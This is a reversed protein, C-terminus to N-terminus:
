CRGLLLDLAWCGRVHRGQGRLHSLLQPECCGAEELADALVALRGVALHGGPLEREEHASRALKPVISGNWALWSPDVTVPHFPNGFIDRFLASQALQERARVQGAAATAAPSLVEELLWEADRPDYPRDVGQLPSPLEVVLVAVIAQAAAKLVKTHRAARLAATLAQARAMERHAAAVTGARSAAQEAERVAARAGAYAASLQGADALGDAYLESVEVAAPSRPDPLLRWVRRCCAVALLLEKREGAKGGLFALMKEPDTCGDWEQETV